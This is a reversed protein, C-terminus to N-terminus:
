FCESELLLCSIKNYMFFIKLYEAIMFAEFNCLKKSDYILEKKGTERTLESM